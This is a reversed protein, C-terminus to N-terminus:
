LDIDKEPACINLELLLSVTVTYKNVTKKFDELMLVYYYMHKHYTKMRENKMRSEDCVARRATAMNVNIVAHFTAGRLDSNSFYIIRPNETTM